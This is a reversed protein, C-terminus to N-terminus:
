YYKEFNNKIILKAAESLGEGNHSGILEDIVRISYGRDFLEFAALLVCANADLGCIDFHDISTGELFGLFEESHFVSFTHKTFVHHKEALQRLEPAIKIDDGGRCGKWNLLKEFVYGKKNVFRTFIIYDYNHSSIHQSIANPIHKSYGNIFYGQVDIVLLARKM